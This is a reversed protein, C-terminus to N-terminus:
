AARSREVPQLPTKDRHDVFGMIKALDLLGHAAHSENTADPDTGDICVARMPLFLAVPMEREIEILKRSWGEVTRANPGAGSGGGTHEEVPIGKAVRWRRVLGAYELGATYLAPLLKMRLCFRGLANECLQSRNGLRHPQNLVTQMSEEERRREMAEREERTPQKLKGSATRKGQKRPRGAM